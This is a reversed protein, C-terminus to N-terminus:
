YTLFKDEKKSYYLCAEVDNHYIYSEVNNATVEVQVHRYKNFDPDDADLELDDLNADVKKGIIEGEIYGFFDCIRQCFFECDLGTEKEFIKANKVIEEIEEGKIRNKIAFEKSEIEEHEVWYEILNFACNVINQLNYNYHSSALNYDSWDGEIICNGAIFVIEKTINHNYDLIENGACFKEDHWNIIKAIERWDEVKWDKQERSGVIKKIEKIKKIEEKM